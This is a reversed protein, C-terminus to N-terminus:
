SLFLEREAQRRAVLGPEVKGDSKDWLLFQNAAAAMGGTLVCRMLTSHVGRGGGNRERLWILGDKVGPIGPGINFCFDVLADFQNQTLEVTIWRNVLDAPGGPGNVDLELWVEAQAPTCVDGDLVGRTHGWGITWPAGNTGPDPYANLRLSEFKKILEFCAPSPDM